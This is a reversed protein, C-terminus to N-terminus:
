SKDRQVKDKEANDRVSKEYQESAKKPSLKGQAVQGTLKQITTSIDDYGKYGPRYDTFKLYEQAEGLIPDQKVTSKWVKTELSDKRPPLNLSKASHEATNDKSCLSKVLDSALSPNSSKSGVLFAWGGSMTSYGSRTRTPIKAAKIVSMADSWKTKNDGVTVWNNASYTGDLSMAVKGNPFLDTTLIDRAHKDSWYKTPVVIDNEFLKNLFRWTQDIGDGSANWKGTQDDFMDTDTGGLLSEFTRISSAESNEQGVYLFLPSISSKYQKIKKAANYIDQWSKPQWPVPLGAKKFIGTHYYLVIADTAIMLGRVKNKYTVIDRMSKPYQKWDDWDDIGDIPHTYGADTDAPIKFSDEYFVDPATKSSRLELALKTRYDDSEGKIPHLEIKSGTHKKEFATKTKRIISDLAKSELDGNDRYALKLTKDSDNSGSCAGVAGTLASGAIAGTGLKLFTNRNM